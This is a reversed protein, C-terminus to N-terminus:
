DVGLVEKPNLFTKLYTNQQILREYEEKAMKGEQYATKLRVAQVKQAKITQGHYVFLLIVAVAIIINKVIKM